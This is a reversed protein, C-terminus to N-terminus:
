LLLVPPLFGRLNLEDQPDLGSQSPTVLDPLTSAGEGDALAGDGDLDFRMTASAPSIPSPRTNELPQRDWMASDRAQRGAAFRASGVKKMPLRM